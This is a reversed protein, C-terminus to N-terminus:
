GLGAGFLRACTSAAGGFAGVQVCLLRTACQFRTTLAKALAAHQNPQNTHM